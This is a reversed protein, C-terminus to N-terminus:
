ILTDAKEVQQILTDTNEVQQIFTNNKEVFMQEAKTTEEETVM